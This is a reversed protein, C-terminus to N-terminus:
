ATNIATKHLLLVTLTRLRKVVAAPVIWILALLNRVSVLVFLEWGEFTLHILVRAWDTRRLSSECVLM